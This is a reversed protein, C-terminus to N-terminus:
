LMERDCMWNHLGWEGVVTEIWCGDFFIDATFDMYVRVSYGNEKLIREMNSDYIMISGEKKNQKRPVIINYYM